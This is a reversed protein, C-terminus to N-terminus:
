RATTSTARSSRGAFKIARRQLPGGRVDGRTGRGCAAHIIERARGTLAVFDDRWREMRHGPAHFWFSVGRGDPLLLRPLEAGEFRSAGAPSSCCRATAKARTARRARTFRPRPAPRRVAPRLRVRLAAGSHGRRVLRGNWRDPIRVVFREAPGLSGMVRRGPIPEPPTEVVSPTLDRADRAAFAPSGIPADAGFLGGAWPPLKSPPRTRRRRSRGCTPSAPPSKSPSSGGAPPSALRLM